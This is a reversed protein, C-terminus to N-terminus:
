KGCPCRKTIPCQGSSKRETGALASGTGLAAGLLGLMMVWLVFRKGM